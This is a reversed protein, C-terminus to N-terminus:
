FSQHGAFDEEEEMWYQKLQACFWSGTVVSNLGGVDRHGLEQYHFFLWLTCGRM